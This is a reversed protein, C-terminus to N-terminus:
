IHIVIYIKFSYCFEQALSSSNELNNQHPPMPDHSNFYDSIKRLSRKLLGKEIKTSVLKGKRISNELFPLIFFLM